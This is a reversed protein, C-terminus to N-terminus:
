KLNELNRIELNVKELANSLSDRRETMKSTKKRYKDIIEPSGYVKAGSRNNITEDIERLREELSQKKNELEGVLVKQLSDAEFRLERTHESYRQMVEPSGYVCSMERDRIIRRLDEIRKYLDATKTDITDSSAIKESMGDNDNSDPLNQGDVNSDSTRRSSTCAAVFAAALALIGIWTRKFLRM